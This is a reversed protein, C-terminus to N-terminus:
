ASQLRVLCTSMCSNLPPFKPRNKGGPKIQRHFRSPLDYIFVKLKRTPHSLDGKHVQPATEPTLLWEFYRRPLKNYTLLGSMNSSNNCTNISTSNATHTASTTSAGTPAPAHRQRQKERVRVRQRDRERESVRETSPSPSEPFCCRGAALLLSRWVLRIRWSVM